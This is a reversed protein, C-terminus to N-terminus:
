STPLLSAKIIDYVRKSLVAPQASDATRRGLWGTALGKWGGLIGALWVVLSGFLRQTKM